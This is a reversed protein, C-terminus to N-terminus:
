RQTSHKAVSMDGQKGYQNGTQHHEGMDDDRVVVAGLIQRDTRRREADMVVVVSRSRPAIVAALAIQVM